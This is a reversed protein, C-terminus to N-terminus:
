SSRTVYLRQAFSLLTFPYAFPRTIHCSILHITHQKYSMFYYHFHIFFFLLPLLSLLTLASPIVLM